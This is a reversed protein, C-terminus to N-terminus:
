NDGNLSMKTFLKHVSYAECCGDGEVTLTVCPGKAPIEQFVFEGQGSMFEFLQGDSYLALRSCSSYVTACFSGNKQRKVSEPVIYAFPESSWAAKYRYFESTLRHCGEMVLGNEKGRFVPARGMNGEKEAVMNYKLYSADTLILIGFRDCLQLFPKTLGKGREVYVSNAGLYLLKQVDEMVFKQFEIGSMQTPIEYQVAKLELPAGNLLIEKGERQEVSRLPVLRCVRDLCAGRSDTLIVELTYLYPDRYGCWLHPKFMIARLPEEEAALGVCELVTRQQRDRLGIRVIEGRPAETFAFQWELCVKGTELWLRTDVGEGAATRDFAISM